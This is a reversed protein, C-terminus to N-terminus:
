LTLQVSITTFEVTGDGTAPNSVSTKVQFPQNPALQEVRSGSPAFAAVDIFNSSFNWFSAKQCVPTSVGAFNFQIDDGGTYAATNYTGKSVVFLPLNVINSAGSAAVIDVPTTFNALIEPSSMNKKTFKLPGLASGFNALSLFDLGFGISAGLFKIMKGVDGAGYTGRSINGVPMPKNVYTVVMDNKTADYEGVVEVGGNFADYASITEGMITMTNSGLTIEADKDIVVRVPAGDILGITDVTVVFNAVLTVPSGGIRLTKKNVGPVITKTGGSSLVQYNEVGFESQPQGLGSARYQVVNSGGTNTIEFVGPQNVFEQPINVTGITLPQGNLVLSANWIIRIPQGLLILAPYEFVLPAVLTVQAPTYAEIDQYGSGSIGFQFTGGASTITQRIYSM